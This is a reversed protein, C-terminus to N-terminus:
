PRRSVARADEHLVVRLRKAEYWDKGKGHGDRYARAEAGVACRDGNGEAAEDAIGEVGHPEDGGDQMIREIERVQQRADDGVEDVVERKALAGVHRAGVGEGFVERKAGAALLCPVFLRWRLDGFSAPQHSNSKLNTFPSM